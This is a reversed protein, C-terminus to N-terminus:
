PSSYFNVTNGFGNWAEQWTTSSWSMGLAIAFWLLLSVKTVPNGWIKKFLEGFNHGTLGILLWVVLFLGTTLSLLPTPLSISASSAVILWLALTQLKGTENATNTISTLPM